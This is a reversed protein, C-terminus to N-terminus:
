NLNFVFQNNNNKNLWAEYSDLQKLNEDLVKWIDPTEDTRKWSAVGALKYKLVLSSKLNISNADELWIRYKGGDKSYETYFQGSTEDWQVEANNEMVLKKAQDMTLVKPSPNTVKIKGDELAEEKWLRTYFPLGVLLKDAPVEELTKRVYKEVWAFQAVSGAEPCNSWHQDYTMVAIYDVIQGLAKRDYCKSWNDSGDPVGVDMSVVLGQEKLLPTLERVFQTLADRDEKNINEFDINIGDLKYLSAYILLKRIVNDRADTNNLFAKTKTPDGFDNNFLAWVKYGNNHAWDVFVSDSRNILEGYENAVQFWTPSIVDLGEIKNIKSLDPRGGYMAEWVMNIRGKEPRWPAKQEPKPSESITPQRVAVHKKQIYGVAGDATRVKYWKDYEEYVRLTNKEAKEESVDLKKIIPYRISRGKRVVAKSSIPRATQILSNKKDITIVNSEQLFKVEINYFESLFQIPIYIVGNEKRVPIKLDVPKNNVFANLNDTQMRIVRDKTTVTVKQLNEDWWIYPDIHEKIVELPLMIENDIILPRNKSNDVVDEVVLNLGGEEFAQVVKNNPYYFYYVILVASCVLSLLVVAFCIRTAKM